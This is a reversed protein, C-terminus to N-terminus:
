QMSFESRFFTVAPDVFYEHGGKEVRLELDAPNGYADWAPQLLTSFAADHFPQQDGRIGLTPRPALLLFIDQQSMLKNASPIIHCYHPQDRKRGTVGTFGGTRGGYAQFVIAKIRTDLAAYTVSMEGGYSAGTMGVRNADVEPLSQLLDVATKLDNSIIAKYFTGALIANYAVLRHETDYPAALRGFGRLEFTLTVFGARALELAAGHQYSDVLGATQAIGSESKRVHGPIVVIGPRPQSGRPLFLYAPIEVHDFASFILFQRILGNALTTESEVTFRIQKPESIGPIVFVDEILKSRLKNQWVQIAERETVNPALMAPEQADLMALLGPSVHRGNERRPPTATEHVLDELRTIAQWRSEGYAGLVLSIACISEIIILVLAAGLLPSRFVTKRLRSACLLLAILQVAVFSFLLIAFKM